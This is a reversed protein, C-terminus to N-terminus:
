GSLKIFVMEQDRLMRLLVLNIQFKLINQNKFLFQGPADCLVYDQGRGGAIGPAEITKFLTHLIM